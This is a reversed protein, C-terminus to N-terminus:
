LLEVSSITGMPGRKLVHTYIMTDDQGRELLHTAFSHRFTHCGALKTLSARKVARMEAKQVLSPDLPRRGQVDSDEDRRRSQQTLVWQWVWEPYRCACASLPVLARTLLSSSNAWRLPWCGHSHAPFLSHLWELSCCAIFRM